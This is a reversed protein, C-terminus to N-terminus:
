GNKKGLITQLQENEHQLKIDLAANAELIEEIPLNSAETYTLVGYVIPRWWAYFDTAREQIIRKTLYPKISVNNQIPVTTDM